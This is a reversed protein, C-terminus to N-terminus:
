VKIGRLFRAADEPPTSSIEIGTGIEFGAWVATKPIIEIHWHYHAARVGDATPATHIFFNYAPDKLGGSLKALATKLADAAALTQRDSIAEFEPQHRKPFIRIEFAQRSVYPCFVTFDTNEYIIRRGDRREFALMACHVCRRHKKYYAASGALSRRVDPPIVPIAIIQSHPHSITAGADHGHNHFISIYEVCDEDKLALYRQRYARFVMAAEDRRMGALSRVHDRTVVVEHFGVGDTVRYPGQAAAIPCTARYKFAPYKNPVVELWWKAELHRRDKGTLRYREGARDYVLVAKSELREFPCTTRSQPREPAHRRFAYPRRARGTAVVVWDGTVPDQRLESFNRM